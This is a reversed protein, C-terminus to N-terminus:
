QNNKFVYHGAKIFKMPNLPKNDVRIEYHVHVGTSRGTNGMTGIKDGAAVIQGEEVLITNLHGYRTTVGMGHDIEVMKGFFGNRDASIVKGPATATIPQGLQGSLDLGYHAAATGNIPDRRVGFGSSLSYNETPAGLPLQRLMRQLSELRDINADLMSATYDAQEVLGDLERGGLAPVFPGGQGGVRMGGTRSLMIDTDLGTMAVVREAQAIDGLTRQGLRGLVESQAVQMDKLRTELMATRQELLQRESAIRTRQAVVSDLVSSIADLNRRLAANEDLTRQLYINKDELDRTVDVYKREADTLNHRLNKYASVARQVEANKAALRRDFIVYSVSAYALWLTLLLGLGIWLLQRRHSLQIYGVEGNARVFLERDPFRRQAADALRSLGTRIGVRM